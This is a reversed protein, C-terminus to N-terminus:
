RLKRRSNTAIMEYTSTEVLTNELPESLKSIVVDDDSNLGTAIFAVENEVWKVAVPVTKLRNDVVIHVIGNSQVAKRPLKIVNDMTVGPFKVQCFMGEVIPFVTTKSRNQASLRVALKLLRTKSDFAIIRHLLGEAEVIHAGQSWSVMVPVQELESFWFPRNFTSDKKFRLMAKAKESDISVQIELLSDDVLTVVPVGPSVFQGKEVSVSKLRGDFPAIVSAKRINLHSTSITYELQTVQEIMSNHAQEAKEVDSLTALNNKKHLKDIRQYERKVLELNRKLAKLRKKNAKLSLDDLRTDIKILLENKKVLEGRELNPHVDMVKGQIEPSISVITLAKVEGYGIIFPTISETRAKMIEVQLPKETIKKEAPPTKMGALIQMGFVGIGLLMISVMFVFFVSRRKVMNEFDTEM